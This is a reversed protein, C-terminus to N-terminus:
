GFNCKILLKAIRQKEGFIKVTMSDSVRLRSSCTMRVPFSMSLHDKNPFRLFSNPFNVNFHIQLNM